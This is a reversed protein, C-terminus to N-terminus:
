VGSDSFLKTSVLSLLGMSVTAMADRCSTAPKKIAGATCTYSKISVKEIFPSGAIKSNFFIISRSPVTIPYSQMRPCVLGEKGHEFYEFRGEYPSDSFTWTNSLPLRIELLKVMSVVSTCRKSRFPSDASDRSSIKGYTTKVPVRSTGSVVILFSILRIEIHRVHNLHIVTGGNKLKLDIIVIPLHRPLRHRNM